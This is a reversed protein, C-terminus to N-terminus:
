LKLDFNQRLWAKFNLLASPSGTIMIETVQLYRHAVTNMSTETNNVAPLHIQILDLIRANEILPLILM